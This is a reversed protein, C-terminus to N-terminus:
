AIVVIPGEGGPGAHCECWGCTCDPNTQRCRGYAGSGLEAICMGQCHSWGGGPNNGFACPNRKLYDRLWDLPNWFSYSIDEGSTNEQALEDEGLTPTEKLSYGRADSLFQQRSLMAGLWPLTPPFQMGKPWFTDVMPDTVAGAKSCTCAM